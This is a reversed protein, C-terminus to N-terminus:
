SEGWSHWCTKASQPRMLVRMFQLIQALKPQGRNVKEGATGIWREAQALLGTYIFLWNERGRWVSETWHLKWMKGQLNWWCLQYSNQKWQLYFCTQVHSWNRYKLFCRCSENQLVLKTNQVENKLWICYENIQFRILGLAHNWKKKCVFCPLISKFLLM